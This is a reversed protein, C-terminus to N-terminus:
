ALQAQDVLWLQEMNYNYYLPVIVISYNILANQTIIYRASNLGAVGVRSTEGAGIGLQLLASGIKRSAEFAQIERDLTFQSYSIWKYIGNKSQEGIFDGDSTLVIARQLLEFMTTVSGDPPYEVLENERILVSEHIREPGAVIRSYAQFRPFKSPIKRRCASM